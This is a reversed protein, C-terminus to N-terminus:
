CVWEMAEETLVWFDIDNPKWSELQQQYMFHAVPFSGAILVFHTRDILLRRYFIRLMHATHFARYLLPTSIWYGLTGIGFEHRSLWGRFHEKASSGPRARRCVQSLLYVQAGSLIYSDLCVKVCVNFASPALPSSAPVM